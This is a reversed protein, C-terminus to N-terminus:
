KKEGAGKSADSSAKFDAADKEIRARQELAQLTQILPIAIKAPQEGLYNMIRTHDEQNVTYPAFPPPPSPQQALAPAVLVVLFMLVRILM